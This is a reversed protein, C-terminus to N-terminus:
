KVVRYVEDFLSVYMGVKTSVYWLLASVPPNLGQNM